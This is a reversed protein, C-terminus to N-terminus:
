VMSIGDFYDDIRFTRLKSFLFFKKDVTYTAFTRISLLTWLPFLPCTHLM